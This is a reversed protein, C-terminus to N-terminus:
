GDEILELILAGWGIGSNKFHCIQLCIIQKHAIKLNLDEQM